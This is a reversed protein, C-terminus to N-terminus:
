ISEALLDEYKGYVKKYEEDDLVESSLRKQIEELEKEVESRDIDSRKRIREAAVIVKEGDVIEMVGNYVIYKEESGFDMLGKGILCLSDRHGPLVTLEGKVSPIVLFEADHNELVQGTPSVLDISLM